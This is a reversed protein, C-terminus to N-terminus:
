RWTISTYRRNKTFHEPVVSLIERSIEALLREKTFRRHVVLSVERAPQPDAFRKLHDHDRLADVAMEPVITYGLNQRVLNKLTEISSAEFVFNANPNGAKSEDSDCLNLVQNRFCHGQELIWLDRRTVHDPLLPSHEHIDEGPSAYILFPEYFLPIERLYKEQLPTVLIALDLDSRNLGNIIEESTLERIRLQTTPFRESFSQIFLPLLYPALTPIIGLSFSGKLDDQEEVVLAELSSVEQLIDRARALFKEGIASPRLPKKSRDFLVIGLEEELKKLQLTLTPQAVPFSQAAKTFHRYEDLAVAYRLQQLTM